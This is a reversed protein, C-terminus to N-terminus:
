TSRTHLVAGLDCCGFSGIGWMWKLVEVHGGMAAAAVIENNVCRDSTGVFVAVDWCGIDWLWKLVGLHGGKAAAVAIASYKASNYMDMEGVASLVAHLWEVMELHGGRAAATCISTTNKPLVYGHCLLWEFVHVHGGGAAAEAVHHDWSCGECDRLWVLVELQGAAAAAECTPWDSSSSGRARQHLHPCGNDLAWKLTALKGSAAAASVTHHDWHAGMARMWQLVELSGYRAIVACLRPSSGTGQLAERFQQHTPSGLAELRSALSASITEGRPM